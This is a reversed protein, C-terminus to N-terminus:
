VRNITSNDTFNLQNKLHEFIPKPLNNGECIYIIESNNKLQNKDLLVLNTLQNNVLIENAQFNQKIFLKKELLCRNKCMDHDYKCLIVSQKKCSCQDNSSIILYEDNLENNCIYLDECQLDLLHEKEIYVIM